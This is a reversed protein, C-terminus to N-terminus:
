VDTEVGIGFFNMSMAAAYTSINITSGAQFQIYTEIGEKALRQEDTAKNMGYRSKVYNSGGYREYLFFGEKTSGGYVIPRFWLLIFVKGVPVTYGTAAAGAGQLASGIGYGTLGALMGKKIDGTAAWQALGSGLASGALGTLAGTAGLSAFLSPGLMSGLLPAIFPLFAEPQGTEPNVTLPMVQSLGRVEAPNVHMLMSDGYRGQAAVNNAQQQLNMQGGKNFEEKRYDKSLSFLEDRYENKLWSPLFDFAYDAKFADPYQEMKAIRKQITKLQNKGLKSMVKRTPKSIPLEALNIKPAPLRKKIGQVDIEKILPMRKKADVTIEEIPSMPMKEKQRRHYAQLLKSSLGGKFGFTELYNYLDQLSKEKEAM